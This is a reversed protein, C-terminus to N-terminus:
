PGEILKRALRDVTVSDDPEARARACLALVEDLYASGTRAAPEPEGRLEAPDVYRVTVPRARATTRAKIRAVRENMEREIRRAGSELKQSHDTPQYEDRKWDGM